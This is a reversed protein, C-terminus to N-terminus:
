EVIMVKDGVNVLEYLEEVDANNMRICGHSANRGISEPENTGHIGYGKKSIGLFRTGLGNDPGPPIAKGQWYWTPNALKVTITYEGTPTPNEIGTACPYQKIITSGRVLTISHNSLDIFIGSKFDDPPPTFIVYANSWNAIMEETKEDIGNTFDKGILIIIDTFTPVIDPRFDIFRISLTKALKEADDKITERAYIIQSVRVSFDDNGKKDKWNDVKVIKYNEKSLRVRLKDAIGSIGCGNYISVNLSKEEITAFNTKNEQPTEKQSTCNSASFLLAFLSFILIIATTRM